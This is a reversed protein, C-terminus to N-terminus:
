GAKGKREWYDKILKGERDKIMSRSYREGKIMGNIQLKGIFMQIANGEEDTRLMIDNHGFRLSVMASPEYRANIKKLLREALQPM